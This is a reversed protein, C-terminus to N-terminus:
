KSRCWVFVYVVVLLLFVFAGTVAWTAVMGPYDRDLQQEDPTGYIASCTRCAHIHLESYLNWGPPMEVLSEVRAKAGCGDCVFHCVDDFVRTTM